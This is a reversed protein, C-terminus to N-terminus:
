IGPRLIPDGLMTMTGECNIVTTVGLEDYPNGLKGSGASGGGHVAPNLLLAKAACVRRGIARCNWSIGASENSKLRM